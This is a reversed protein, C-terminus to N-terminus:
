GLMFGARLCRIACAHGLGVSLQTLLSGFTEATGGDLKCRATGDTRIVCVLADSVGIDPFLTAGPFSTSCGTGLCKLTGDSKHIYTRNLGTHLDPTQSFPEVSISVAAVTSGPKFNADGVYSASLDKDGSSTFFLYCSGVGASLLTKCSKGDDSSVTVTLTPTAGMVSGPTENVSVSVLVPRGVMKTSPTVATISVAVDSRVTQGYSREQILSPVLGNEVTRVTYTYHGAQSPTGNIAGTSSDLTLGDPFAVM